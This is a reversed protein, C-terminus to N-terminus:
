VAASAVVFDTMKLMWNEKYVDQIILSNNNTIMMIIIIITWIKEHFYMKSLM